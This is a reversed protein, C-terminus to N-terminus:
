YALYLHLYFRIKSYTFKIKYIMELNSVILKDKKALQYKLVAEHRLPWEFLDMCLSCIKDGPWNAYYFMWREGVAEMKTTFKFVKSFQLLPSCCRKCFNAAEKPDEIKSQKLCDTPLPKPKEIKKKKIPIKKAKTLKTPRKAKMTVTKLPKVKAMNKTEINGKNRTKM